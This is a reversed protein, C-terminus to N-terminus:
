SSAAEQEPKPDMGIRYTKSFVEIYFQGGNWVSFLFMIFLYVTHFSYSKYLLFCPLMTFITYFFQAIMFIIQTKRTKEDLEEDPRMYGLKRAVFKSAVSLPNNGMRVCFWRISTWERENSILDVHDRWYVKFMYFIQWVLYNGICYKFCESITITCAEPDVDCDFFYGIKHPYWRWCYTLLPPFGHVVLNTLKDLSHFVLSNKWTIIAMIVPGNAAFFMMKFWIVNKPIVHILFLCGFGTYYCFDLLFYGWGGRRYLM